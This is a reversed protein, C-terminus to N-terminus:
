RALLVLLLAALISGSAWHCSLRVGSNCEYFRTYNVETIACWHLLRCKAKCVSPDELGVTNASYYRDFLSPYTQPTLRETM